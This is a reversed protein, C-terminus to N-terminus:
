ARKGKGQRKKTAQKPLQMWRHEDTGRWQLVLADIFGGFSGVFTETERLELFAEMALDSAVMERFAASRSTGLHEALKCVTRIECDYLMVNVARATSNGQVM